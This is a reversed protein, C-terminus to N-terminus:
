TFLLSHFSGASERAFALDRNGAFDPPSKVEFGPIVHRVLDFVVLRDERARLREVRGIVHRNRFGELFPPRDVVVLSKTIQSGHSTATTSLRRANLKAPWVTSAM